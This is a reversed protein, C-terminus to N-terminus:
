LGGDVHDDDDDHVRVHVFFRSIPVALHRGVILKPSVETWTWSSTWTWTRQFM